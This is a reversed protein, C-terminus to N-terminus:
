GGAIFLGVDHKVLMKCAMLIEGRMEGVCDKVELIRLEDNERVVVQGLYEGECFGLREFCRYGDETVALASWGEVKMNREVVLEQVRRLAVDAFRGWSGQWGAFKEIHYVHLGVSEDSGAALMCPTIEWEKLEGSVIRHWPQLKVPLTVLMGGSTYTFSFAPVAAIWSLLTALTLPSPYLSSESRHLTQVATSDLAVPAPPLMSWPPPLASPRVAAM